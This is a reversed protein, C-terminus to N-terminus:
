KKTIFDLNEMFKLDHIKEAAVPEKRTHRFFKSLENLAQNLTLDITEPKTGDSATIFLCFNNGHRRQLRIICDENARIIIYHNTTLLKRVLVRWSECAVQRM